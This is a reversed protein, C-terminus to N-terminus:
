SKGGVAIEMGGGLLTSQPGDVQGDRISIYTTLPLPCPRPSSSPSSVGSSQNRGSGPLVLWGASLQIGRKEQHCPQMYKM